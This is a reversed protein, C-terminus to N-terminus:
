VTAPSFKVLWVASFFLSELIQIDKEPHEAAFEHGCQLRRDDPMPIFVPLPPIGVPALVM